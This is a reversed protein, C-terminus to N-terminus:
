FSVKGMDQLIEWTRNDKEWEMLRLNDHRKRDTNMYVADLDRLM